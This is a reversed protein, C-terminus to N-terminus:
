EAILVEVLGDDWYEVDFWTGDAKVSCMVSGKHGSPANLVRSDQFSVDMETKGLFEAILKEAKLRMKSSIMIEGKNTNNTETTGMTYITCPLTLPM